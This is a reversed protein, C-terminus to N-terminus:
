VKPIEFFRECIRLVDITQNGGPPPVPPESGAVAGPFQARNGVGTGFVANPTDGVLALSVFFPPAIGLLYGSRIRPLSIM